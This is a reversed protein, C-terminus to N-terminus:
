NGDVKEKGKKDKTGKSSSAVDRTKKEEYIEVIMRQMNLFMKQLEEEGVVKAEPAEGENSEGM